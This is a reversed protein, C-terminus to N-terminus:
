LGMDLEREEIAITPLSSIKSFCGKPCISEEQFSHTNELLFNGLSLVNCGCDVKQIVIQRQKQQFYELHLAGRDQYTKSQIRSEEVTLIMNFFPNVLRSKELYSKVNKCDTAGALLIQFLSDFPCTNTFSYKSKDLIVISLLTNNGNKLIPLKSSKRTEINDLMNIKEQDLPELYLGRRKRKKPPEGLGKWNEVENM